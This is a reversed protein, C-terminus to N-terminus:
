PQDDADPGGGRAQERGEPAARETSVSPELYVRRATPVEERIACEMEDLVSSLARSDIGDRVVIKAGIMVEDPGLQETRLDIIKLLRADALLARRAGNVDDDGASEGILLSKMETALTLAVAVLLVGIGLSGLADFRSNGTAWSLVLGAFACALGALAASDELLVVPLEAQKSAHIFSYWSEDGKLARARRVATRLSLAEFVAALLLICVGWGISTLEHPSRLKEWAELLAFLGGGTFLVMAVVFAWFYRERGYGFPHSKTPRQRARHRGFFLLGQDATDAVSHIGEALLSVAGTLVFGVFKVVAIAVNALLAVLVTRDTDVEHAMERHNGIPPPDMCAPACALSTEALESVRLGSRRRFPM